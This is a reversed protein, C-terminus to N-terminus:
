TGCRCGWVDHPQRTEDGGETREEGRRRLVPRECVKGTKDPEQAPDLVRAHKCLVNARIVLHFSTYIWLVHACVWGRFFQPVSRRVM